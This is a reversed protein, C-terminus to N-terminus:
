AGKPTVIIRVLDPRGTDITIGNVVVRYGLSRVAEAVRISGIHWGDRSRTPVPATHGLVTVTSHDTIRGNLDTTIDAYITTM